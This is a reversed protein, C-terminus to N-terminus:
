IRDSFQLGVPVVVIGAADAEEEVGNEEEADEIEMSTTTQKTNVANADSTKSKKKLKKEKRKQKKALEEDNLIRYVEITKDNALLLLSKNYIKLLLPSPHINTSMLFLLEQNFSLEM